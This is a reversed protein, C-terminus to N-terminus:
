IRTWRRDPAVLRRAHHAGEYGKGRVRVVDGHACTTWTSSVVESVRAGTAYLLELLARDRLGILEAGLRDVDLELYPAAQVADVHLLVGKHARVAAAIEAIPQITGVENNALMISVLITRDNIAADLEGPDVRGYRDVSLEVVEFGVSFIGTAPLTTQIVGFPACPM